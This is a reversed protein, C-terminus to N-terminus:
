AVPSENLTPETAEAELQHAQTIAQWGLGQRALVIFGAVTMPLWVVIHLTIAYTLALAEDVGGAILVASAFFEFVGVQGPSAPILGALNSAGVTLLMLTFPADINFAAATLGYAVAQLLWTIVTALVAGALQLPSRLGGLGDTVDAAIRGIVDGLKGPLVWVVLATVRRLVAPMTALVLFVATAVFFVPATVTVLRRVDESVIDTILLAGLMFCVLVLGDLVREILITTMGKVFPIKHNRQLLYARLAEGARFPYVNNGMYGVWVLGNLEMFSVRKIANVLFQWRWSVAYFSMFFVGLSALVWLPNIRRLEDLISLPNLNRFAVWLFVVSVVLGIIVVIRQKMNM